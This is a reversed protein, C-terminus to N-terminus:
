PTQEIFERPIDFRFRGIGAELPLVLSVGYLAPTAACSLFDEFVVGPEIDVEAQAPKGILEHKNFAPTGDRIVAKNAPDSWCHYRMKRKSHNKIQLTIVLRREAKAKDFTGARAEVVCVEIDGIRCPQGALTPAPEPVVSKPQEPVPVALKPKAKPRGDDPQLFKKAQKAQNKGVQSDLHKMFGHMCVAGAYALVIGVFILLVATGKRSGVFRIGKGGIFVDKSRESGASWPYRVFPEEAKGPKTGPKPLSSVARPKTSPLTTSPEEATFFERLALSGVSRLEPEAIAEENETPQFRFPRNCHSCRLKAGSRVVHSTEASKECHPCVLTTRDPM